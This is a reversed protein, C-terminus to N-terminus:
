SQSTTPSSARCRPRRETSAAPRAATGTAARAWRRGILAEADNTSGTPPLGPFPTSPLPPQPRNAILSNIYPRLCTFASAGKCTVAATARRALPRVLVPMFAVFDPPIVEQEVTFPGAASM